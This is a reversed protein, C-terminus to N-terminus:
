NWCWAVTWQGYLTPANRSLGVKQFPRDQVTAQNQCFGFITFGVGVVISGAIVQIGSVLHEDASHDPTAVPFIWAEVLSGAAIM